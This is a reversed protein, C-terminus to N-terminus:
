AAVAETIPVAWAYHGHSARLYAPGYPGLFEIGCTATNISGRSHKAPVKWSAAKLIDGNEIDIFCYVAGLDGQFRREVIKINKKGYVAEYTSCPLSPFAKAQHARQMTNLRKLFDTIKDTSVM